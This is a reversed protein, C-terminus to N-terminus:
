ASGQMRVVCVHACEPKMGRSAMLSCPVASPKRTDPMLDARSPALSARILVASGHETDGIWADEVRGLVHDLAWQHHSDLLPMERSRSLDLGATVLVEDVEIFDTCGGRTPVFTRVPTETTLVAEFSRTDSDVTSPAAAFVRTHM